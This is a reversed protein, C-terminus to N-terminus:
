LGIGGFSRADGTYVKLDGALYIGFEEERQDLDKGWVRLGLGWVRLGM